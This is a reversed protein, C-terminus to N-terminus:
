EREKLKEMIQGEIDSDLGLIYNKIFSWVTYKTGYVIDVKDKTAANFDDIAENANRCWSECVVPFKNEDKTQGLLVYFEKM